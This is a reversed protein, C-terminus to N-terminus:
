LILREPERSIFEIPIRSPNRGTERLKQLLTDLDSDSEILQGNMVAIYKNAFKKRLKKQTESIWDMDESFEELGQLIEEKKM